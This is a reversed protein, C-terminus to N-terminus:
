RRGLTNGGGDFAAALGFPVAIKLIKWLIYIGVIFFIPLYIIGIVFVFVPGIGPISGLVGALLPILLWALFWQWFPRGFIM